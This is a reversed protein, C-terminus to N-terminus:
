GCNCDNNCGDKKKKFVFKRLLYFVAAAVLIYVIITQM